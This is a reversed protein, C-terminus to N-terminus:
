KKENNGNEEENAKRREMIEKLAREKLSEETEYFGNQFTRSLKEGNDEFVDCYMGFKDNGIVTKM